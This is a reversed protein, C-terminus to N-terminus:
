YATEQSTLASRRARSDPKGRVHRSDAMVAEQCTPLNRSRRPLTKRVEKVAQNKASAGAEAKMADLNTM